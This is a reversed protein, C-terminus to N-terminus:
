RFKRLKYAEDWGSVKKKEAIRTALNKIKESVLRKQREGNMLAGLNDDLLAELVHRALADRETSTYLHSHMIIFRRQDRAEKETNEIKTAGAHEFTAALRPPQVVSAYKHYSSIFSTIENFHGADIMKQDKLMELPSRIVLPKIEASGKVSLSELKERKYKERKSEREKIESATLTDNIPIAQRAMRDLHVGYVDQATARTQEGHPNSKRSPRKLRRSGEREPKQALISITYAM